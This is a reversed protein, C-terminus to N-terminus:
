QHYANEIVEVGLIKWEEDEKVLEYEVLAKENQLSYITGKLTAVKGLNFPKAFEARKNEGLPAHLKVYKVFDKYPTTQRYEDSFFEFYALPLEQERIARLQEHVVDEPKEFGKVSKAAVAIDAIKWEDGEKLLIYELHARKDGEFFVVRVKALGNQLKVTDVEKAAHTQLLPLYHVFEEFASLSTHKQFEKAHLNYYAAILEGEKVSKVHSDVLSRIQQV